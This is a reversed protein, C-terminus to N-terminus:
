TALTAAAPLFTRSRIPVIDPLGAQTVVATLRAPPFNKVKSSLPTVVVIGTKQSGVKRAFFFAIIAATPFCKVLFGATAITEAEKAFADLSSQFTGCVPVSIM